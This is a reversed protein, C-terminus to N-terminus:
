IRLVQAQCKAIIGNAQYDDERLDVFGEGGWTRPIVAIARGSFSNATAKISLCSYLLLTNPVMSRHIALYGCQLQRRM